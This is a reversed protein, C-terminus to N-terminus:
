RKRRRRLEDTNAPEAEGGGEQRVVREWLKKVQARTERVSGANDIIVDAYRRKDKIPIQANIRNLAQEVGFHDRAMLRQIQTEEDVVVLWVEDVMDLMGAEILVPADIVVGPFRGPPESLEQLREAIARIIRPHTIANLRKVAAPDAFVRDGLKRRDIERDETLIDSGFAEILESWADTGPRVVEKAVLDSDIVPAGLERLVRSV